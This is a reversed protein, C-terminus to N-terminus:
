RNFLERALNTDWPAAFLKFPERPHSKKGPPKDDRIATLGCIGAILHAALGIGRAPSQIV